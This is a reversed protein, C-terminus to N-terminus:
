VVGISECVDTLQPCVPLWWQRPAHETAKIRRSADEAAAALRHVLEANKQKELALQRHITDLRDNATQEMAKIRRSADEDEAALRHVLEANQQKELALRQRINDLSDNATQATTYSETVLSEWKLERAACEERQVAADADRQQIHTVCMRRLQETEEQTRLVTARLERLEEATQTLPATPGQTFISAWMMAYLYFSSRDSLEENIAVAQKYLSKFGGFARTVDEGFKTTAKDRRTGTMRLLMASIRRMEDDPVGIVWDPLILEQTELPNPYERPLRALLTQLTTVHGSLVTTGEAITYLAGGGDVSHNLSYVITNYHLQLVNKWHTTLNIMPKQAAQFWAHAEDPIQM